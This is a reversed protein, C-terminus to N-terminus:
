EADDAEGMQETIYGQVDENRRVLDRALQENFAKVAQETAACGAILAALPMVFILMKM